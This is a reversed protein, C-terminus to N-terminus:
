PLFHQIVYNEVLDDVLKGKIKVSGKCGIEIYYEENHTKINFGIKTLKSDIDGLYNKMKSILDVNSSVVMKVRSDKFLEYTTLEIDTLNVDNKHESLLSLVSNLNIVKNSIVCQFGLCKLLDTRFPILSRTPNIIHLTNNKIKVENIAYDITTNEYEDGFPTIVKDININKKIHRFHIGNDNSKNINFGSSADQTFRHELFRSVIQEYNLYSEFDYFVIRKEM